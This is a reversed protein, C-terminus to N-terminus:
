EEGSKHKAAAWSIIIGVNNIGVNNIGVNPGAAGSSVCVCGPPFELEMWKPSIFSFVEWFPGSGAQPIKQWLFENLPLLVVM